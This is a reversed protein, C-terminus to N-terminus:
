VKLCLTIVGFAVSVDEEPGVGVRFRCYIELDVLLLQLLLRRHTFDGRSRGGGARVKRVTTSASAARHVVTKTKSRSETKKM